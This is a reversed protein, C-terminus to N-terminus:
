EIINWRVQAGDPLHKIQVALNAYFRMAQVADLAYLNDVAYAGGLVFPQIPVLLKGAPLPGHTAQWAEAFPSGTLFEPDDLLAAAWGALDPAIFERDATEPNFAYIGEPLLVFQGGFIDQAFFIGPGALGEYASRWLRDSNWDILSTAGATNHSPFVQLAADFAQFGNKQQLLNKLAALEADGGSLAQLDVPQPSLAPSALAILQRLADPM